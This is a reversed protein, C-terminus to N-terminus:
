ESIKQKIPKSNSAFFEVFLAVKNPEYGIGFIEEGSYKEPNTYTGLLRDWFTFMLGYNSHAHDLNSHHHGLHVRPTVFVYELYKSYPLQFSTHILHQYFVELIILFLVHSADLNLLVLTAAITYPVLIVLYHAPSGKLGTVWNVKPPYHHYAHASWIYKTHAFRHTWYVLFDALLLYFIIQLATPLKISFDQIFYFVQINGMFDIIMSALYEEYLVIYSLFVIM